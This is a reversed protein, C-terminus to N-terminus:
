DISINKTTIECLNNKIRLFGGKIKFNKVEGNILKIKLYGETLATILPSHNPYMGVVGNLTSVEIYSTDGQFETKLPSIVKISISNQM